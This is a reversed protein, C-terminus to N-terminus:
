STKRIIATCFITSLMNDWVSLDVSNDLHSLCYNLPNKQYNRLATEAAFFLDINLILVTFGRLSSGLFNLVLM